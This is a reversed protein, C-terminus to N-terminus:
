NALHCADAMGFINNWGWSLVELEYLKVSMSTFSFLASNHKSAKFNPISTGKHLSSHLVQIDAVRKVKSKSVNSYLLRPLWDSKFLSTSVGGEEM